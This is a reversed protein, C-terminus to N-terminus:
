EAADACKLMAEDLAEVLDDLADAVEEARQGKEGSQLSEPMNDFYEREEAAVEEVIEKADAILSEAEGLRKRRQKNM